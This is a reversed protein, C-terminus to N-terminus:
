TGINKAPIEWDSCNGRCGQEKIGAAVRLICTTATARHQKHVQDQFWLNELLAIGIFIM